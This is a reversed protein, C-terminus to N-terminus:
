RLRFKEGFCSLNCLLLEKPESLKEPLKLNGHTELITAVMYARGIVATGGSRPEDSAFVFAAFIAAQCIKAAKTKNEGIIFRAAIFCSIIWWLKQSHILLSKSIVLEMITNTKGAGFRAQVVQGQSAIQGGM